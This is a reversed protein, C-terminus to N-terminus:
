KTKAKATTSSPKDVKKLTVNGNIGHAEIHPGGAGLRGELRGRRQEGQAAFNPLAQTIEGNIGRVEVEANVEDAFYLDVNGNIGSIDVGRKGLKTITAEINGNMGHMELGGTALAVKTTGNLGSLEVAGGIEGITTDGNAGRVNLQVERPLKVHVRQRGEPSAGLASFLSRRDNEVRITLGDPNHEINLRRFKLEERKKASRVILVEAHDIDATEVTVRGNINYINVEAGSKLTYNRRIEEREAYDVGEGGEDVVSNTEAGDAAKGASKADSVAISDMPQQEANSSANNRNKRCAGFSLLTGAVVFALLVLTAKKNM